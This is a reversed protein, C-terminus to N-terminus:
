YALSIYLSVPLEFRSCRDEEVTGAEQASCGRKEGGEGLGPLLSEGEEKRRWRMTFSLLLTWILFEHLEHFFFPVYFNFGFRTCWSQQARAMSPLSTQVIVSTAPHFLREPLRLHFSRQVFVFPATGFGLANGFQVFLNWVRTQKQILTPRAGNQKGLGM